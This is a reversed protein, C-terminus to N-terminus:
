FFLRHGRTDRSTAGTVPFGGRSGPAGARLSRGRLVPVVAEPLQGCRERGREPPAVKGGAAQEPSGEGGVGGSAPGEGLPCLCLGAPRSPAARWVAGWFVPLAAPAGREGPLRHPPPRRAHDSRRSSQSFGWGKRKAAMASRLASPPAAARPRLRCCCHSPHTPRDTPLLSRVLEGGAPVKPRPRARLSPAQKRDEHNKFARRPLFRGEPSRLPPYWPRKRSPGPPMPVHLGRLPVGSPCRRQHFRAKSDSKVSTDTNDNPSFCSNRKCLCGKQNNKYDAVDMEKNADGGLCTLVPIVTPM